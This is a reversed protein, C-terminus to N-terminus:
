PEFVYTSDRYEIIGTAEKGEKGSECGVCYPITLKSKKVTVDKPKVFPNYSPFPFLPETEALVELQGAGLSMIVLKFLAPPEEAEKYRLLLEETGDQNLDIKTIDDPFMRSGFSDIQIASLKHIVAINAGSAEIFFLNKDEALLVVKQLTDVKFALVKEPKIKHFSVEDEKLRRQERKITDVFFTTGEYLYTNIFLRNAQGVVCTTSSIFCVSLLVLVKM